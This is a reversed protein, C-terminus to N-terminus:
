TKNQNNKLPPPIIIGPGIYVFNLYIFFLYKVIQAM